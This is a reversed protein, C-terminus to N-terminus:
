CHLVIFLHSFSPERHSIPGAGAKRQQVQVDSHYAGHPTPTRWAHHLNSGLDPINSVMPLNALGHPDRRPLNPELSRQLKIFEFCMDKVVVQILRAPIM